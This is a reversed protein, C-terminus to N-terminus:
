KSPATALGQVKVLAVFRPDNAYRSIYPMYRIEALGPDGSQRAAELWHFMQAEDDRQAYVGAIQTAADKAHQRILVQLEEDSQSRDGNAWYAMALAYSRWLPVPERKAITIAESTRNQQFVAMALFAQALPLGPALELAEKLTHEAQPYDAQSLYVSGLSYLTPASLPNTKLAGRLSDVAQDLQGFGIQRLALMSLLQANQPQRALARRTADLAGAQDHAVTALWVANALQAEALDDALRLAAAADRRAMEAQNGAATEDLPFQTIQRVRAQALRAHAYAYNPDLDVARQYADVAQRASFIDAQTALADGRLVAAYAETNGNPPRDDQTPKAADGTNMAKALAAVIEDQLGFLEGDVRQYHQSWLSSGDDALILEVDLRLVGAQRQVRGRLLHTAGLTEGIVSNLESSNRYRFASERSITAVGPLLALARTFHDAMGDAFAQADPDNGTAPMPLVAVVRSIEQDAVAATVRATPTAVPTASPARSCAGCALLLAVPLALLLNRHVRTQRAKSVEAQMRLDGHKTDIQM